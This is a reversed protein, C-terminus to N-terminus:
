SGGRGMDGGGFPTDASGRWTERIRHALYWATKQTVRLDRHLRMSSTGKIGTSLIYIAIAWVQFGLPSGQMLTGSKASFDKRCDRCRYPQPKRTRREQVNVGRVGPM